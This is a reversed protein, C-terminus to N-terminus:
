PLLNKESLSKKLEHASPESLVLDDIKLTPKRELGNNQERVWNAAEADREVDVYHYHVGWRDLYTMTHRTDSCWDAGYVIVREVTRRWQFQLLKPAVAFASQSVSREQRMAALLNGHQSM